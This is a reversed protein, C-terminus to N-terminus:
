TLRFLNCVKEEFIKVLRAVKEREATKHEEIKRIKNVLSLIESGGESKKKVNKQGIRCFILFTMLSFMTFLFFIPDYDMFM